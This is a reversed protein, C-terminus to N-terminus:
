LGVWRSLRIENCYIYWEKMKLDMTKLNWDCIAFHCIGTVHPYNWDCTACEKIKINNSNLHCWFIKHFFIFNLSWPQGCFRLTLHKKSQAPWQKLFHQQLNWSLLWLLCIVSLLFEWKATASNTKRFKHCFVMYTTKEFANTDVLLETPTIKTNELFGLIILSVTM